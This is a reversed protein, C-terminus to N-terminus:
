DLAQHMKLDRVYEKGYAVEFVEWIEPSPKIERPVNDRSHEWVCERDQAYGDKTRLEVKFWCKPGHEGMGQAHIIEQFGKYCYRSFKAIFRDGNLKQCIALYITHYPLKMDNEIMVPEGAYNEIAKYPKSLFALVGKYGEICELM